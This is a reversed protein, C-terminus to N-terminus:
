LLRTYLARFREATFDADELTARRLAERAVSM